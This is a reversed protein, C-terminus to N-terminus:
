ITIVRNLYKELVSKSFDVDRIGHFLYLDEKIKPLISYTSINYLHSSESKNYLEETPTETKLYEDFVNTNFINLIKVEMHNSFNHKSMLYNFFLEDHIWFYNLESFNNFLLKCEEFFWKCKKNFVFLCAHLWPKHQTYLEEKFFESLFKLPIIGNPHNRDTCLFYEHLHSGILPYNEIKDFYKQINDIYKTAIADSDIWIFNEYETNDIAAICADMKAMPAIYKEKIDYIEIVKIRSNTIEPKYNYGVVIIDFKSFLLLSKILYFSVDEFNKDFGVVFASM